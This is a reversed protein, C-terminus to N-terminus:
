TERATDYYTKELEEKATERNDKGDKETQKNARSFPLPPSLFGANEATANPVTTNKKRPTRDKNTRRSETTPNAKNTPQTPHTAHSTSFCFRNPKQM